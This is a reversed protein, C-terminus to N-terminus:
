AGPPLAGRYPRGPRVTPSRGPAPPRPRRRAPPLRADVLQFGEEGHALQRSELGHEGHRMPPLGKRWYEERASHFKALARYPAGFATALAGIFSSAGVVWVYPPVEVLM